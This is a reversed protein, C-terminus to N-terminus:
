AAESVGSSYSVVVAVVVGGVSQGPVPDDRHEMTWDEGENTPGSGTGHQSMPQTLSSCKSPKPQSM